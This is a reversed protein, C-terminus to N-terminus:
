EETEDHSDYLGLWEVHWRQASGDFSLDALWTARNEEILSEEKDRKGAVYLDAAPESLEFAIESWEDNNVEDFHTEVNTVEVEIEGHLVAWDGDEYRATWGQIHEACLECSDHSVFALPETNGTLRAYDVAAWFYELVAQAGDASEETAVTPLRPEPVNQAPGEESAPVYESTNSTEPTNSSEPAESATADTTEELDPSADDTDSCGTLSVLLLSATLFTLTRAHVPKKSFSKMLTSELPVYYLSDM